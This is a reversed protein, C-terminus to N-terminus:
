EPYTTVSFYSILHQLIKTSQPFSRQPINNWIENLVFLYESIEDLEFVDLPHKQLNNTSSKIESLLTKLQEVFKNDVLNSWMLEKDYSLDDIELSTETVIERIKM